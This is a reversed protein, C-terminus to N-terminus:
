NSRTRLQFGGTNCEVCRTMYLSADCELDFYSLIQAVQTLTLTLTLTPTSIPNPTLTLTLFYSLIRAVQAKPDKASVWIWPVGAMLRTNVLRRDSTVESVSCSPPSSRLLFGFCSPLLTLAAALLTPM